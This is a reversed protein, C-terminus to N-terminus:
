ALPTHARLREDHAAFILFPPHKKTSDDRSTQVDITCCLVLNVISRSFADTTMSIHVPVIQRALAPRFRSRLSIFSWLGQGCRSFHGVCGQLALIRNISFVDNPLNVCPARFSLYTNEVIAHSTNIPLTIFFRLFFIRLCLCLFNLARCRCLFLYVALGIVRAHKKVQDSRSVM